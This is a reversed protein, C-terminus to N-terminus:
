PCGDSSVISLSFIAPHRTSYVIFFPAICHLVSPVFIQTVSHSCFLSFYNGSLFIFFVAFSSFTGALICTGKRCPDEMQTFYISFSFLFNHLIYLFSFHSSFHFLLYLEFFIIILGINHLVDSLISMSLFPHYPIPQPYRRGRTLDQKDSCYRNQDM